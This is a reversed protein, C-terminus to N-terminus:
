GNLEEHSLKEMVETAVKALKERNQKVEINVSVSKEPAYTGKIKYAMELGKSVAMTDPQDLVEYINAGGAEESRYEVVSKERKNLLELHREALLSDPLADEIAGNIKDSRLLRHAKVGAYNPDEIGFAEKAALTGNGTETKIEVFKREQNSLVENPKRAVRKQRQTGAKAM